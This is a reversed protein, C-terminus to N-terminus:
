QGAHATVGGFALGDGVRTVSLLEHWISSLLHETNEVSMRRPRREQLIECKIFYTRQM